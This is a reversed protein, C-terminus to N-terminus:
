KVKKKNLFNPYTYVCKGNPDIDAICNKKNKIILVSINGEDNYLTKVFVGKKFFGDIVAQQKSTANELIM